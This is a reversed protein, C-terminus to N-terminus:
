KVQIVVYSSNTIGHEQISEKLYELLAGYNYSVISHDSRQRFSLSITSSVMMLVYELSYLYLVDYAVSVQKFFKPAVVEIFAKENIIKFHRRLPYFHCSSNTCIM